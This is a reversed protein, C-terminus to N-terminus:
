KMYPNLQRIISRFNVRIVDREHKGLYSNHAVLNRCNGLEDVKTTIWAQDPFYSKFLEWNNVLVDGLDKFDVYFLDSGGRLSIWNNKAQADKRIDIGTKVSKPIKLSNIYEAGYKNEAVKEIFLRLYNEVSYLYLYADAMEKGKDLIDAPLNFEAVGSQLSASVQELDHQLSQEGDEVLLPAFSIHMVDLGTNSPMVSNCIELLIKNEQEEIAFLEFEKMPIQFTVSTYMANWRSRSFSSSTNISCKAKVLADRLNDYGEKVLALLVAKHYLNEDPPQYTFESMIKSKSKRVTYAFYVLFAPSSHFVLSINYM